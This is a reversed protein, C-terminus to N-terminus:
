SARVGDNGVVEGKVSVELAFLKWCPPVQSFECESGHKCWSLIQPHGALLVEQTPWTGSETPDRGSKTVSCLLYTVLLWRGRQLLIPFSAPATNKIFLFITISTFVKIIETTM